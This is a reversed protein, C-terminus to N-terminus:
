DGHQAYDNWIDVAYGAPMHDLLFKPAATMSGTRLLTVVQRLHQADGFLANFVIGNPVIRWHRQGKGIM